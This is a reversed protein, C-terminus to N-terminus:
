SAVSWFRGGDVPRRSVMDTSVIEVLFYRPAPAGMADGGCYGHSVMLLRWVVGIRVQSVKM